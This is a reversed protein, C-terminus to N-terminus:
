IASYKDRKAFGKFLIFMNIKNCATNDSYIRFLYFHYKWMHFSVTNESTFFLM